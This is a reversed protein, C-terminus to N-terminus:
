IVGAERLQSSRVPEYVPASELRLRTRVEELQMPLLAEWDQSGLWAAKRGRRYGDRIVSVGDNGHGFGKLIGALILMVIATNWNQAVIFALLALEGLVDGRYGTAAHWLDHTDRLRDHLYQFQVPRDSKSENSASIIGEATIGESEVFALYARGLSGAPLARLGERDALVPAINPKDALLRRGTETKKFHRLLRHPATGSMSDILTFVQPLDDPDRLLAGLSRAARRLDYHPLAPLRVM